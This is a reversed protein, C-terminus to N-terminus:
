SLNMDSDRSVRSVPKDDFPRASEIKEAEAANVPEEEIVIKSNQKRPTM